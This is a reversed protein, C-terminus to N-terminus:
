KVRNPYSPTLKKIKCYKQIPTPEKFGLQYVAKKIFQPLLPSNFNDMKPPTQSLFPSFIEVEDEVPKVIEEEPEEIIEVVEAKKKQKTKEIIDAYTEKTLDDVKLERRDERLNSKEEGTLNKNKQDM